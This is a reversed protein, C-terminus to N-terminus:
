SAVVVDPFEGGGLANLTSIACACETDSGAGQKPPGLQCGKSELKTSGGSTVISNSTLLGFLTLMWGSEESLLGWAPPRAGSAKLSLFRSVIESGSATEPYMEM